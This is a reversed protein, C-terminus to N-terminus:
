VQDKSPCMFAGFPSFPLHEWHLTRIGTDYGAWFKKPALISSKVSRLACFSWIHWFRPIDDKVVGVNWPPGSLHCGPAKKQWLSFHKQFSWFLQWKPWFTWFYLSIFVTVALKFVVTVCVVSINWYSIQWLLFLRFTEAFFYVWGVIWKNLSTLIQFVWCNKKSM